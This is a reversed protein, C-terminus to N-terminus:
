TQTQFGMRSAQQVRKPPLVESVKQANIRFLINTKAPGDNFVLNSLQADFVKDVMHNLSRCGGGAQVAREALPAYADDSVEVNIGLANMRNINRVLANDKGERLVRELDAQGLEGLPKISEIRGAMEQTFGVLHVLDNQSLMDTPMPQVFSLSDAFIILGSFPLEQIEHQPGTSVTLKAGPEVLKLFENQLQFSFSDNQSGKQLIKAFEDFYFIMRNPYGGCKEIMATLKTFLLDSVNVGKYGSATFNPSSIESVPIGSISSIIRISLTKGSGTPGSLLLPHSQASPDAIYKAIKLVISKLQEDQAIVSQRVSTYLGLCYDSFAAFNCQLSAAMGNTVDVLPLNPPLEPQEVSGKEASTQPSAATIAMPAHKRVIAMRTQEDPLNLCIDQALDRTTMKGNLTDFISDVLTYETGVKTNRCIEYFSGKKYFFDALLRADLEMSEPMVAVCVKALDLLLGVPMLNKSTPPSISNGRFKFHYEPEDESDVSKVLELMHKRGSAFPLTEHISNLPVFKEYILYYIYDIYDRQNFFTPLNNLNDMAGSSRMLMRLFEYDFHFYSPPSASAPNNDRKVM